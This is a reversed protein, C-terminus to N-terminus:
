DVYTCFFVVCDFLNGQKLWPKSYIYNFIFGSLDKTELAHWKTTTQLMLEHSAM